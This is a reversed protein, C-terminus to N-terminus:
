RHTIITDGDMEGDKDRIDGVEKTDGAVVVGKLLSLDITIAM